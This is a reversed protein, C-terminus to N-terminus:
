TGKKIRGMQAEAMSKRGAQPKDVAEELSTCARDTGLTNAYRGGLQAQSSSEEFTCAIGTSGATGKHSSVAADTGQSLGLCDQWRDLQPTDM